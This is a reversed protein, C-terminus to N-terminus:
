LVANGTRRGFGAPRADLRKHARHIKSAQTARNAEPQAMAQRALNRWIDPPYGSSRTACVTLTLSHNDRLAFGM